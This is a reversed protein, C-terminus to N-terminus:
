AAKRKHSRGSRKVNAESVNAQAAFPDLTQRLKHSRGSQKVNAESV